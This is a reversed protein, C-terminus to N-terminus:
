NRQFQKDKFDRSVTHKSPFSSTEGSEGSFNSNYEKLVLQIM